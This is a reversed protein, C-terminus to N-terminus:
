HMTEGDDGDNRDPISDPRAGRSAAVLRRATAAQDGIAAEEPDTRAPWDNMNVTVRTRYLGATLDTPGAGM